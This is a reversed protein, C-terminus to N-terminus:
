MGFQNRLRTRLGIRARISKIYKPVEILWVKRDGVYINRNRFVDLWPYGYFVFGDMSSYLDKDKIILSEMEVLWKRKEKSYPQKFLPKYIWILMESLVLRQNNQVSITNNSKTRLYYEFLRKFVKIMQWLDRIIVETQTTQGERGKLYQYLPIDYFIMTSIRDLPFFVYENDTYSIGAQLELGIERLLQTRYILLHSCYLFKFGEKQSDFQTADIIKGKHINEPISMKRTVLGDPNRYESETVVLDVDIDRLYTLLESLAQTNFWDDADLARIYKGQAEAIGRNICTGYNGNEKDIVRYINPHHVAYEQAIESSRDSSGDNVVLVELTNMLGKDELILSSLCKPLFAEMNYTPVVVTLTKNM